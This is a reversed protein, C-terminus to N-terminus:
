DEKFNDYGATEKPFQNIIQQINWVTDSVEGHYEVDSKRDYFQFKMTIRQSFNSDWDGKLGTISAKVERVKTQLPCEGWIEEAAIRHPIISQFDKVLRCSAEQPHNIFHPCDYCRKVEKTVTVEM